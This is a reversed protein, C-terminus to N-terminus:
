GRYDLCQMQSKKHMEKLTEDWYPKLFQKFGRRNPLHIDSCESVVTCINTYLSDVNNLTKPCQVDLSANRCKIDMKM